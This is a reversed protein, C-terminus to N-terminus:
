KPQRQSDLWAITELDAETAEASEPSYTVGEEKLVDLFDALPMGLLKAAVGGSCLGRKFVAVAIERLIQAKLGASATEPVPVDLHMITTM